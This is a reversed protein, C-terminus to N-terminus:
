PLLRGRTLMGKLADRTPHLLSGVREGNKGLLVVTDEFFVIYTLLAGTETTTDVRYTSLLMGGSGYLERIIEDTKQSFPDGDKAFFLVAQENKRPRHERYSVYAPVEIPTPISAPTPEVTTPVTRSCGTLLLGIISLAIVFRM